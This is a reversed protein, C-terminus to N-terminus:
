RALEDITECTEAKKIHNGLEQDVTMIHLSLWGNILRKVAEAIENLTLEQATELLDAVKHRFQQHLKRHADIGPYEYLAMLGEEDRFHENVYDSLRHLASMVGDEDQEQGLSAALEFFHKHQGDIWPVGIALQESWEQYARKDLGPSPTCDTSVLTM